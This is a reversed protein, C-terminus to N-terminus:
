TQYDLKSRAMITGTKLTFMKKKACDRCRHTMQPHKIGSQVNDSGCFPCVPGNPWVYRALWDYAKQETDFMRVIDMIGSGKRYHKGPANNAMTKSTRPASINTQYIIGKAYTAHRLLDSPPNPGPHKNWRDHVPMKPTTTSM